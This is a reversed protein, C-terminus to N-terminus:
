DSLKNRELCPAPFLPDKKAAISSTQTHWSSKKPLVLSSGLLLNCFTLLLASFSSSSLSNQGGDHEKRDLLSPIIMASLIKKEANDFFSARDRKIQAGGELIGRDGGSRKEPFTCLSAAWSFFNFSINGVCNRPLGHSASSPPPSHTAGSSCCHPPILSLALSSENAIRPSWFHPSSSSPPLPVNAGAMVM